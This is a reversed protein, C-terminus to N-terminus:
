AGRRCRWSGSGLCGRRGFRRKRCTGCCPESGRRVPVSGTRSFCTTNKKNKFTNNTKTTPKTTAGSQERLMHKPTEEKMKSDLEFKKTEFVVAMAREMISKSFILRPHLERLAAIMGAHPVLLAPQTCSKDMEQVPQGANWIAAGAHPAIHASQTGSNDMEQLLQRRGSFHSAEGYKIWDVKGVHPSMAAALEEADGRWAGSRRAGSESRPTTMDRRRQERGFGQVPSGFCSRRM